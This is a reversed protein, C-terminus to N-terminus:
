MKVHFVLSNNHVGWHSTSVEKAILPSLKNIGGLIQGSLYRNASVIIARINIEHVVCLPIHTSLLKPPRLTLPRLTISSSRWLNGKPLLVGGGGRGGWFGPRFLTSCKYSWLLYYINDAHMISKCAQMIHAPSEPTLRLLRRSAHIKKALM